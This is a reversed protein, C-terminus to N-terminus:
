ALRITVVGALALLAALWHLPGIRDKMFIAAIATAFFVSTERLAAMLAIPAMTLSWMYLLFSTMSLSSIGLGVRWKRRVLRLPHHGEAWQMLAIVVGNGIAVAFAYRMVGESLRAGMADAAVYGAGCLAALLAFGMGKMEAPGSGKALWALVLLALSILGIGGAAVFGPWEAFLVMAIPLSLLPIGARMTPYALAFPARRYAEMALRIGISNIVVGAALWPWAAPAPLGLILTAPVSILGSVIVGAALTEGPEPNARAIANWIAHLLASAMIVVFALTSIM